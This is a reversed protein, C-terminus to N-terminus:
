IPVIALGMDTGLQIRYSTPMNLFVIDGNEDARKRLTLRQEGSLALAKARDEVAYVLAILHLAPGHASGVGM